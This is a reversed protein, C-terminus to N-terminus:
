PAYAKPVYNLESVSAEEVSGNKRAQRAAYKEACWCVFSVVM